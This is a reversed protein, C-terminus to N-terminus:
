FPRENLTDSDLLNIPDGDDGAFQVFAMNTLTDIDNDLAKSNAEILKEDDLYEQFTNYIKLNLKCFLLFTSRDKDSEKAKTIKVEFPILVNSYKDKQNLVIPSIGNDIDIQTFISEKVPSSFIDLDRRLRCMYVYDSYRIKKYSDGVQTNNMESLSNESERKNQTATIVPLKYQRSLSRLEQVIQGHTDYDNFSDYRKVSGSMVDVYDSFILKVNFGDVKLQDIFRGLDSASFTNENCHKLVLAVKENTTKIISSHTINLFMSTVKKEISRGSELQELKSLEYTKRFLKKLVRYDYNGFISAFRRFLKYIDDELTLFLIADGDEFEDINNEIISRTINSMFISKGNNSPASILHVSSSEIGDLTKDFVNYGTQLFSYGESVYKYLDKALSEASIKDSLVFYDKDEIKDLIQLKSLDNYLNIVVDKYQKVAEFVPVSDSWVSEILNGYLTMNGSISNIEYFAQIHNLIDSKLTRFEQSSNIQQSVAANVLKSLRLDQINLHQQINEPKLMQINAERINLLTNSLHINNLTDSFQFNNFKIIKQIDALFTKIFDVTRSSQITGFDAPYLILKTLNIFFQDSTFKTIFGKLLNNGSQSNQQLFPSNM